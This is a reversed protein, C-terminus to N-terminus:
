NLSIGGIVIAYLVGYFISIFYSTSPFQPCFLLGAISLFSVLSSFLATFFPLAYLDKQRNINRPMTANIAPQTSQNGRPSPTTDFKGSATLAINNMSKIITTNNLQVRIMLRPHLHGCHLQWSGRTDYPRPHNGLNTM